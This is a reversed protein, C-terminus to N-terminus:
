PTTALQVLSGAPIVAGAVPVTSAPAGLGTLRVRFGAQHLAQVAQRLTLGQVSPVAHAARVPPATPKRMPLTVTYSREPAIVPPVAIPHRSTTDSTASATAPASPGQASARTTAGSVAEAFSASAALEGRNLAADRAAIASELVLKLIPAATAGAYFSGNSPNQLTVLIVYQPHDAPFLGVFTATYHGREYGHGPVARRATGTKGAVVYSGLAAQKGTGEEVVGELIGRMTRAIQPSVVRRVVRRTHQYRVTGDPSRVEKILAPQVLEGGNAFAAYATVLQLPTVSIEYGMALSAPSQASWESPPRLIGGSEAPYLVGTPMGFGFDRLAEYEERPSLRSAFKAIGINSSYRIVDRLSLSTTREVDHITRGAVTYTGGETNVTDSPRAKGLALLAAAMFPKMVSGPEFPQTLAPLGASRPDSRSSVLARIEGTTPDLIVIDGGDAGTHTVADDLARQSIEQLAQNITLVVADGPVPAVYADGPLAFRMGRPDRERTARGAQGRLLSDLVLEMGYLPEGTANVRGVLRRTAQRLTYVRQLTTALYVGDMKGLTSAAGPMFDGPLTVWARHTDTARAIWRPAVGLAALAHATATRNRLERPAVSVRVMERSEALPTGNADLIEGRPAPLDDVAFHQRHARQAWVDGQVLQVQAARAVLALAFLVLSAHILSARGPLHM